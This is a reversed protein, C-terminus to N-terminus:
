CRRKIIERVIRDESLAHGGNTIFAPLGSGHVPCYYIGANSNNYGITNGVELWEMLLVSEDVYAHEIDTCGWFSHGENALSEGM